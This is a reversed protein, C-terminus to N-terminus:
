HKDDWAGIVLVAIACITSILVLINYVQPSDAIFSLMMSVVMVIALTVITHIFYKKM